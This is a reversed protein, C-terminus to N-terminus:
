EPEEPDGEARRRRARDVAADIAARRANADTALAARLDRQEREADAALAAIRAVHEAYHREALSTRLQQERFVRLEAKASRFAATLAIHSPCVIDCCGCEICDDLGLDVLADTDPRRTARLLAQPQLRAPCASACEGCRICPWESRGAWSEGDTMAIICNTSKTVPIDDSPLAYGMMSGGVILGAVTERYGGCHEVLDAISAGIPVEVNQPSRVGRGTVTVIRSILPTGNAVYDALAYATAVNHCVIGLAPPHAQAPVELGLLSEVLQREGGAPYVAPIAALAFREDALSALAMRLADLAATKDREVAVICRQANLLELM